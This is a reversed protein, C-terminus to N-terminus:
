LFPLSVENPKDLFLLLLFEYESLEQGTDFTIVVLLYVSRMILFEYVSLEQGTDFTIVVLLYVSRRIKPKSACVGGAFTAGHETLTSPRLLFGSM